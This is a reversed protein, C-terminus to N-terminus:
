QLHQEDRRQEFLQEWVTSGCMPCLPLERQISVGYSCESCQYRGSVLEGTTFFAVYDPQDHM